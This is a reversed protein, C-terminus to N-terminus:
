WRSPPLPRDRGTQRQQQREVRALPQLAEPPAAPPSRGARCGACPPPTPLAQRLRHLHHPPLRLQQHLLDRELRRRAVDRSCSCSRNSGRCSGARHAGPAAAAPQTASSAARALAPQQQQQRMVQRDVVDVSSAAHVSLAPTHQQALPSRAAPAPATGCNTACARSPTLALPARPTRGRLHQAIDLLRRRREPQQVHLRRRPTSSARRAPHRRQRLRSRRPARASPTLAALKHWTAHACTSARAAPALSTTNPVTSNPRMCPPAPASRTSPINM